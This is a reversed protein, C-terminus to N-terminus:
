GRQGVRSMEQVIPVLKKMFVVIHFNLSIAFGLYQLRLRSVICSVLTISCYHVKHWNLYDHKDIPSTQLVCSSVKKTYGRLDICLKM